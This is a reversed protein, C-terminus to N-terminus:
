RGASYAWQLEAPLEALWCTLDHGGNYERYLVEDAYPTLAAALRKTQPIMWDGEQLGVDLCFRVPPSGDVQRLLWEPEEGPPAWWFSGSQAIVNGFVDPRRLGAFVSALGGYSKGAVVTRRPDDTAGTLKRAWPVLEDALYEAFRENCPLERARTAFDVSDPLVAVLPPLMGEAVLNDLTPFIPLAETWDRGDLLILLAPNEARPVSQWLWIRRDGLTTETVTGRPVGPRPEAWPRPTAQDLAFTSFHQPPSVPDGPVGPLTFPARNFPDPVFTAAREVAAPTGATELPKLSDNPSLVYRGRLDARAVYSRFWVDTGPIHELQNDPIEWWLAPGGIVVVTDIPAEEKWLFTVLRHEANYPEVLPTGVLAVETWFRALVGNVPGAALDERLQQIRM